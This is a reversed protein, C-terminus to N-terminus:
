PQDRRGTPRSSKHPPAFGPPRQNKRFQDLWTQLRPQLSAELPKIQPIYDILFYILKYALELLENSNLEISEVTLGKVVGGRNSYVDLHHSSIVWKFKTGLVATGKRLAEETLCSMEFHALANRISIAKRIQASIPKWATQRVRQELKHFILRDVLAFKNEASKIHFFALSTVNPDTEMLGVAILYLGTEIHQWRVLGQGLAHQMRQLDDPFLETVPPLSLAFGSKSSRVKWIASRKSFVGGLGCSSIFISLPLVSGLPFGELSAM